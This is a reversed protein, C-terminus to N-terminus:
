QGGLHGSAQQGPQLCRPHEHQHQHHDAPFGAGSHIHQDPHTSPLWVIIRGGTSKVNFQQLAKLMLATAAWQLNCYKDFAPQPRAIIRRVPVEALLVAVGVVVSTAFMLIWVNPDFPRLFSFMDITSPVHILISFGEDMYDTSLRIGGFAVDCQSPDGNPKKLAALLPDWDQTGVVMVLWLAHLGCAIIAFLCGPVEVTQVNKCLPCPM